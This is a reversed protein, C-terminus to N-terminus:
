KGNQYKREITWGNFEDTEDKWPEQPYMSSVNGLMIDGHGAVTVTSLLPKLLVKLVIRTTKIPISSTSSFNLPSLSLIKGDNRDNRCRRM